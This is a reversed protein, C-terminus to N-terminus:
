ERKGSNYLVLCGEVSSSIVFSSTWSPMDPEQDNQLMQQWAEDTLRNNMPQEFEYYSFTGGRTLVVRGDVPVAVYIFMPRGVAEELVRETNPDTHVDAIVAMSEDTDSVYSENKPMSVIGSLIDHSSDIIDFETSNLPENALEKISIQHLDLLYQHLQELKGHITETLLARDSLGDMMMRCLSALRGYIDPVPEVYGNVEEVPMSSRTVTYSQKAYLITDHRLETWSGLATNLQKDVWAQNQMFLPYNSGHERLLPLLSYLWLYYLNKTWEEQTINGVMNKMKNMQSEYNQYDKEDELLEWARQSGLAAMVDLGKPMFRPKLFTGVHDYVLQGLIYSDPIFRQGMFRMGKTQNMNETDLLYGSLISPNRLDHGQEIFEDLHTDNDITSLNVSVGYVEDILSRYERPTLDDASGVFFATPEYVADWVTYGDVQPTLGDVYKELALSILIGQATENRGKENIPDREPENPQLRFPIRGYWMMAKFYRKLTESRTYHGRAVYQSFDEEYNMFWAESFGEHAEILSLVQQVDDQILSPVATENDLLSLAVYFFATNRLAAEKWRGEPLSSYQDYSTKALQDTLNGILDWFSYVEVERLALDYLVHFAHLVADSTVFNPIDMLDNKELIDHIQKYEKQPVVVFGNEQIMERQEPTLMSFDALNIVNSLGPSLSYKPANVEFDSELPTYNAFHTAVTSNITYYPTGTERAPTYDSPLWPMGTLLGLGGVVAVGMLSALIAAAAIKHKTEKAITQLSQLPM